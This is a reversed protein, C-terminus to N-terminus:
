YNDLANKIKNFEEELQNIELTIESNPEYKQRMVNLTTHFDNVANVVATNKKGVDLVANLNNKANNRMQIFLASMITLAIVLLTIITFFIKDKKSIKKM